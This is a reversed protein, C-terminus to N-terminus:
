KANRRLVDSLKLVPLVLKIADIEQQRRKQPPSESLEFETQITALEDRNSFQQNGRDRRNPIYVNSNAINLNQVM